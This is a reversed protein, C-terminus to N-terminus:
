KGEWLDAERSRRKQLGASTELIGTKQSRIKTWMMFEPRVAVEGQNIKALLSSKRLAASGLNYTFSVLADFQHQRLPVHVASSVAEEADHVDLALLELAQDETLPKKFKQARKEALTVLHGYGITDYGAGDKYVHPVFGESEKILDLGQRSTKMGRLYRSPIM